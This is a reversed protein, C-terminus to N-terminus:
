GNDAGGKKPEDTTEIVIAALVLKEHEAQAAAQAEQVTDFHGKVKGGAVWMWPSGGTFHDYEVAVSFNLSTAWYVIETPDVDETDPDISRAPYKGLTTEWQLLKVRVIM